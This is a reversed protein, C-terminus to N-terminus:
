HAVIAKITFNTVHVLQETVLQKYKERHDVARLVARWYM